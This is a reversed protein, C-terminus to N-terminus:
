KKKKPALNLGEIFKKDIGYTEQLLDGIFGVQNGQVVVQPGECNPEDNVLTASTAVGHQIQHCLEKLDFGYVALNNILTVVKNGARKQVLFTIIPIKGRKILERGDPLQIVFTKTMKNFIHQMLTNWDMEAPSGSPVLARLIDDLAVSKKMNRGQSKVYHTVAQRVDKAELLDGKKVPGYSRFLIVVPETVAYQEVIVPGVVKAETVEDTIREDTVEFRKLAPHWWHVESIMDNGKGKQTIKLIPGENHMQNMEKLFTSFKKYKTKKMDLRRGDPLTKLLCNSYFQGVDYPFTASKTLRYLLAAMFTRNLLDEQSEAPEEAEEPEDQIAVEAIQETVEEVDKKAAPESGLAPFAEEEPEIEEKIEIARIPAAVKSGFQWLTDRFVHLVQVGRGQMRNAIMDNSSMLAQGVAVPGKIKADSTLLSIAVPSGAQIEPLPFLASKLVGPLMLDAGNELFEFVKEHVYLIPCAAETLWTLYVTPYPTCEGDLEFFLPQRDFVYLNMRVNNFCAIGAVALQSKGIATAVEEGVRSLFKKRESSRVNTNKKVNFPKKFM